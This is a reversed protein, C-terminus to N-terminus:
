GKDGGKQKVVSMIEANARSLAALLDDYKILHYIAAEVAANDAANASDMNRLSCVVDPIDMM